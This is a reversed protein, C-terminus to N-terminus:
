GSAGSCPLITRGRGRPTTRWSSWISRCASNKEEYAAEVKDLTMSLCQVNSSSDKRIDSEGIFFFEGIGEALVGTMHLVPRWSGELMKCNLDQMRPCRFKAQDMGDIVLYLIGEGAITGQATAVSLQSMRTDISRDAFITRLHADLKTQVEEREKANAAERRMKQFKCCDSCKAHQSWVRFKLVPKWHQYVRYFTPRSAQPAATDQSIYTDYLEALSGPALYRPQKFKNASILPKLDFLSSDVGPDNSDDESESPPLGPMGPDLVSCEALPEALNQYVWELWANVAMACEADRGKNSHRNDVPVARNEKIATHISRLRDKDIGLCLALGKFCVNNEGLRWQTKTRETAAGAITWGDLAKRAVLFQALLQQQEDHNGEKLRNRMNVAEPVEMFKKCDLNCCRRWAVDRAVISEALPCESCAAGAAWLALDPGEDDDSPLQIESDMM